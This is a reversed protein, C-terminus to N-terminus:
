CPRAERALFDQALGEDRGAAELALHCKTRDFGLMALRGVADEFLMAEDVIHPQRGSSPTGAFLSGGDVGWRPRLAEPAAADDVLPGAAFIDMTAADGGGEGTCIAEAADVAPGSSFMDVEDDKASWHQLHGDPAPPLAAWEEVTRVNEETVAAAKADVGRRAARLVMAAIPRQAAKATPTADAPLVWRIGECALCRITDVSNTLTCASCTWTEEAIPAVKTSQTISSDMGTETNSSVDALRPRKGPREAEENAEREPPLVVIVGSSNM